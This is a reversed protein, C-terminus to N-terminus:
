ASLFKDRMDDIIEQGFIEVLKDRMESVKMQDHKGSYIMWQYVRYCLQTQPMVLQDVPSSIIEAIAKTFNEKNMLRATYGCDCTCSCTQCGYDEETTYKNFLEDINPM